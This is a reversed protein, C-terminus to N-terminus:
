KRGFHEEMFDRYEEKKRRSEEDVRLLRKIDDRIIALYPQVPAIVGGGRAVKTKKDPQKPQETNGSFKPIITKQSMGVFKTKEEPKKKGGFVEFFRM